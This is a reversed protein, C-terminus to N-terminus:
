RHGTCHGQGRPGAGGMRQSQGCPLVGLARGTALRHVKMGPSAAVADIGVNLPGSGLQQALVPSVIFGEEALKIAPAVLKELPLSGHTRAAYTLGAVTGPVAVSYPTRTSKGAIVQGQQDLFMDRKAASPATERFDLAQTEGNKASRILMFGGGGLNGANPLVVALAFGVAVAADVANGGQRLIEVGVETALRQETAVMGGSARVPHFIELSNDYRTVAVNESQARVQSSFILSCALLPALLVGVPRSRISHPPHKSSPEPQM